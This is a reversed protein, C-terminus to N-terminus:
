TVKGALSLLLLIVVLVRSSILTPSTVIRKRTSPSCDATRDRDELEVNGGARLDRGCMAVVAVPLRDVSELADEGPRDLAGRGLDARALREEDGAAGDVVEVVGALAVGPRERDDGGADEAGVEEALDSRDEVGRGTAWRVEGRQALDHAAV